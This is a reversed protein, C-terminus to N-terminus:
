FIFIKCFNSPISTCLQFLKLKKASCNQSNSYFCNHNVEFVFFQAIWFKKEFVLKKTNMRLNELTILSSVLPSQYKEYALKRVLMSFIRREGVQYIICIKAM